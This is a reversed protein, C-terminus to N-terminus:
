SKKCKIRRRRQYKDNFEDEELEIEIIEKRLKYKKNEYRGRCILERKIVKYFSPKDKYKSLLEGVMYTPMEALEDLISVDDVTEEDGTSETFTCETIAVKAKEPAIYPFIIGHSDSVYVIKGSKVLDPNKSAYKFPCGKLFRFNRKADKHTLESGADLTIGYYEWLFKFISIVM